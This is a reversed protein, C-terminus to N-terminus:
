PRPKAKPKPAAPYSAAGERFVAAVKRSAAGGGHGDAIGLFLGNQPLGDLKVVLATLNDESGALHAAATFAEALRSEKGEAIAKQLIYIYDHPKPDVPNGEYLGDSSVLLFVEKGAKLEKGIDAKAFQAERSVGEIGKDGFARSLMLRGSVRGNKHVKGGNGEVLRKEKALRAHHDRTLKRAEVEGTKKDRIFLVAPSDGLFGVSLKGDESLVAATGTSGSVHRRTESAARTFLAALFGRAEEATKAKCTEIVFRDEQYDRGGQHSAFQVGHRAGRVDDAQAPVPPLGSLIETKKDTM